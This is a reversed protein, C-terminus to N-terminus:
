VEMPEVRVSKHKILGQEQYKLYRLIFDHPLSADFETVVDMSVVLGDSIM